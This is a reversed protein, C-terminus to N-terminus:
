LRGREGLREWVVRWTERREVAVALAFLRRAARARLRAPLSSRERTVMRALRAEGAAKRQREMGDRVVEHWGDGYMEGFSGKRTGVIGMGFGDETRM